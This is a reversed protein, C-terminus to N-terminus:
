SVPSSIEASDTSRVVPMSRSCSASASSCSMKSWDSSANSASSSGSSSAHSGGASPASGGRIKRGNKQSKACKQRKEAAARAIETLIQYAILRRATQAGINKQLPLSAGHVTRCQVHCFSAWPLQDRSKREGHQQALDELLEIVRRVRQDDPTIEAVLREGGDARGARQDEQEDAKELTQGHARAHRDRAIEARAVMVAYLAGDM